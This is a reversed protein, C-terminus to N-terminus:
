SVHATAKVKATQPTVAFAAHIEKEKKATEHNSSKNKSYMKAVEAYLNKEERILDPTSVSLPFVAEQQCIHIAPMVVGM